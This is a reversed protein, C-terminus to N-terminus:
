KSCTISSGGSGQMSRKDVMRTVLGPRTDARVEPVRLAAALGDARRRYRPGHQPDYRLCYVLGHHGVYRAPLGDLTRSDFMGRTVWRFM